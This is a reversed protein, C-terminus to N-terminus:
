ISICRTTPTLEINQQTLTPYSGTNSIIKISGQNFTSDTNVQSLDIEVVVSHYKNAELQVSLTLSTTNRIIGGKIIVVGSDITVNSGAVTVALENDFDEIIGCKGGLFTNIALRNSWNEYLQSAYNEGKLM